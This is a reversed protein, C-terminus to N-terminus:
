AAQATELNYGTSVPSGAKHDKSYPTNKVEIHAYNFTVKELPKRNAGEEQSHTREDHDLEYGSILVNQLTV